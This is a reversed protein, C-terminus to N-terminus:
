FRVFSLLDVYSKLGSLADLAQGMGKDVLDRGDAPPTAGTILATLIKEIGQGATQIGSFAKIVADDVTKDGSRTM